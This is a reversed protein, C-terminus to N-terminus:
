PAYFVTPRAFIARNREGPVTEDIAESGAELISMGRGAELTQVRPTVPPGAGAEPGAERGAGGPKRWGTRCGKGDEVAVAALGLGLFPALLACVHWGLLLAACAKALM